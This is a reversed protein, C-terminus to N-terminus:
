RPLGEERNAIHWLLGATVITRQVADEPVLRDYTDRTNHYTALGELRDTGFRIVPVGALEFPVNDNSPGSRRAGVLGLDAFPALAARVIEVNQPPGGVQASRARGAGMDTELHVIIDRLGGPEAQRAAVWAKSGLEGLEEGSWLAFRITRKPPSPLQRLIRAAEMVMACGVADDTAGTGGGWSDLHEAGMVIETPKVAGPIDAFVNYSTRGQAHLRNVIEFELRVPAGNQLLREIRGYDSNRLIVAPLGQDFAPETHPALSPLVSGDTAADFIRLLAGASVLAHDILGSAEAPAMAGRPPLPVTPRPRRATAPDLQQLVEETTWRPPDASAPPAIVPIVAARGALVIKGRIGGLNAGLWSELAERTPYEPPVLQVAAAAIRGATSPSWPQVQIALPARAPELLYASASENTWGPHGFDWPEARANAFGWSRLNEVAWRAAAEHAPSGTLRPGFRDTLTHAISMLQAASAAQRIRANTEADIPEAAVAPSLLFLALGVISLPRSPSGATEHM